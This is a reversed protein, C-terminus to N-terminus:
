EEEEKDERKGKFYGAVAGIAFGGVPFLYSFVQASTFMQLAAGSFVKSANTYGFSQMLQASVFTNSSTSSLIASIVVGAIYGVVVGLVGLAVLWLIARFMGGQKKKKDAPQSM